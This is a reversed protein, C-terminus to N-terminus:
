RGEHAQPAIFQVVSKVLVIQQFCFPQEGLKGIAPIAKAEGTVHRVSESCHWKSQGHPPGGTRPRRGRRGEQLTRINIRNGFAPGPPGARVLPDAGGCCECFRLTLPM